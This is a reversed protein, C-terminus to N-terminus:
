GITHSVIPGFFRSLASHGDPTIQLARDNSNRLLWQNAVFRDLLAAGISGGLHARRETWDLCARVLTRRHERLPEVEIGIESLFSAGSRTLRFHESSGALVGRHLMADTVAVGLQGALHDYCSRAQRLREMTTHQNLSNVPGVPAISALTEVARAVRVSSLTFLRQRGASRVGILGGGTLKRLHATAAQPSVQARSALESASLERSDILAFLMRARASDGILAAIQAIDPGVAASRGHLKGM